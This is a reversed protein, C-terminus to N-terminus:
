YVLNNEVFHGIAAVHPVHGEVNKFFLVLTAAMYNQLTGFNYVHPLIRLTLVITDQYLNTTTVSIPFGLNNETPGFRKVLLALILTVLRSKCYYLLTESVQFFVLQRILSVPALPRKKTLRTRLLRAESEVVGVLGKKGM